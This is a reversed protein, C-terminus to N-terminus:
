QGDEPRVILFDISEEPIVSYGLESECLVETIQSSM